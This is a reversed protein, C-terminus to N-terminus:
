GPKGHIEFQMEMCKMLKRRARHLMMSVANPTTKTDAAIAKVSHAEAYRRSLVQRHEDCLREMCKSIAEEREISSEAAHKASDIRDLQSLLDSHFVLKERTQRKIFALLQFHAIAFAWAAFDTGPKFEDAKSCLVLNIEQVLDSAQEHNALRKMAFGFLRPQAETLLLVFKGPVRFQTELSNM